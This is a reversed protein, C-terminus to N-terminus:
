VVLSCLLRITEWDRDGCSDREAQDLASLLSKNSIRASNDIEPEFLEVEIYDQPIILIGNCLTPYFIASVSKNVVRNDFKVEVHLGAQILADSKVDPSDTSGSYQVGRAADIGWHTKLYKAAMREGRKGKSRSNISMFRINYYLQGM